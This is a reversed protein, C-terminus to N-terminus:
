YFMNDISTTNSVDLLNIGDISTVSTFGVNDKLGFMDSSDENAFFKGSGNGAIILNTGEIYVKISGMDDIDANWSETELGTPSYKDVFNIKTINSKATTGKYWSSNPAFTPSIPKKILILGKGIISM